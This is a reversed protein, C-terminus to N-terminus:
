PGSPLRGCRPAAGTAGLRRRRREPVPRRRRCRGRWRWTPACRTSRLRHRRAGHSQHFLASLVGDDRVARTAEEVAAMPDDASRSAAGHVRNLLHRLGVPSGRAAVLAGNLATQAGDRDGEALVAQPHMTPPSRCPAISPSSRMPTPAWRSPRRPPAVFGRCLEGARDAALLHHVVRAPQAGFAALRDATASHAAARDVQDGLWMAVELHELARDGDVAALTAYEDATFEHAVLAVSGLSERADQPLRELRVVVAGYAGTTPVADNADLAAAVDVQM